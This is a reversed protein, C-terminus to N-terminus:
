ICLQIYLIKRFIGKKTFMVKYKVKILAVATKMSQCFSELELSDKLFCCVGYGLMRVCGGVSEM